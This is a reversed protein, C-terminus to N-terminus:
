IRRRAEDASRVIRARSAALEARSAALSGAMSNFARQLAGVEGVGTEPMRVQLDGGALRGAM